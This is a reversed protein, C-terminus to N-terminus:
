VRRRRVRVGRLRAEAPEKRPEFDEARTISELDLDDLLSTEPIPELAVLAEEAPRELEQAAPRRRKKPRRLKPRVWKALDKRDGLRYLGALFATCRRILDETKALSRRKDGMSHDRGAREPRIERVWQDLEEARERVFRALQHPDQLGGKKSEAAPPETELRKATELGLFALSLPPLRSLGHGLGLKKGYGRGRLSDFYFRAARLAERLEEAAEDRRLRLIALEQEGSAQRRGSQDLIERNEALVRRVLEQLFVVDPIEEGDRLYPRFLKELGAAASAAWQSAAAEADIASSVRDQVRRFVM